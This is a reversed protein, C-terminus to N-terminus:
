ETWDSYGVHAPLDYCPPFVTLPRRAVRGIGFALTIGVMRRADEVPFQSYSGPSLPTVIITGTYHEDLLNRVWASLRWRGAQDSIGISGDLLGYAGRIMNPDGLSDNVESRWYWNLSAFGRLRAGLDREYHGQLSFTWKPANPLAIGSADFVGRRAAPSREPTGWCAAREFDSFEADTYSVGGSLSLEPIPRAAFELEAGRTRLEGANGVVFAGLPPITPDNFQGQFDKFRTDFVALNLTLRRDLLSSKLGM